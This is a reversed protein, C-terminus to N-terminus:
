TKWMIKLNNWNNKFFREYYNQKSKKMVTSLLNRYYKYQQQVENQMKKIYRKFSNNKFSIKSSSCKDITEDQIKVWMWQNKLCPMSILYAVWIKSLTLQYKAM